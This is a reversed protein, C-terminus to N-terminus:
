SRNHRYYWWYLLISEVQCEGSPIKQKFMTNRLAVDLCLPLWDFTMRGEQQPSEVFCDNVDVNWCLWIWILHWLTIFCGVKNYRIQVRVVRGFCVQQAIRNLGCQRMEYKLFHVAHHIDCCVTYQNHLLVQMDSMFSEIVGNSCSFLQNFIAM